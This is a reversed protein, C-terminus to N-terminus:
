PRHVEKELAALDAALRTLSRDDPVPRTVLLDDLEAPTRGTTAAVATTLAAPESTPPLRLRTRLRRATAGRLIRAAHERDRVRRYLRGRGQTSEIAKVVVPLPEVVLPGLRRGRWVMASLAAAGVLWLSPFLGRPLQAALSGTDGVPVDALDPVYWVLREQRGLLRLAVAANDSRDIRENTLLDDAGVVYTRVAADVRVVYSAPDEGEGPFCAAAIGADASESRYGTSPPVAIALGALLPDDCRADVVLGASVTDQVVPLRLYRLLATGPDPLVLSGAAAVRQRLRATTARGLNGPSTVVVTTRRDVRAADLAAASRVIQVPVGEDGLVQALAQAGDPSPNRPDLRTGRAESQATVVSLAALLALVAVAIAVLARHRRLWSGSAPAPLPDSGFGPPGVPSASVVPGVPDATGRPTTTTM